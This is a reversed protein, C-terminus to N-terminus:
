GTHGHATGDLLKALSAGLQVMLLLAVQLCHM